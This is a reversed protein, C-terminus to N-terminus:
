TDLARYENQCISLVVLNKWLCFIVLTNALMICTKISATHTAHCRNWESCLFPHLLNVLADDTWRYFTKCLFTNYILAKDEETKDVHVALRHYDLIVATHSVRLSLANHKTQLTIDNIEELTNSVLIEVLTSYFKVLTSSYAYHEYATAIWLFIYLAVWDCADLINLATDYEM